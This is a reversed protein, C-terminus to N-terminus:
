MLAHEPERCEWSGVVTRGRFGARVRGAVCAERMALEGPLPNDAPLFSSSADNTTNNSGALDASGGWLEPVM